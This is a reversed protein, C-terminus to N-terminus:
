GEKDVLYELCDLLLGILAGLRSIYRGQEVQTREYRLKQLLMAQDTATSIVEIDASTNWDEPKYRSGGTQM